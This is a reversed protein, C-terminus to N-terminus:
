SQEAKLLCGQAEEQLIHPISPSVWFPLAHSLSLSHPPPHLLSLGLLPLAPTVDSQTCVKKAMQKYALQPNRAPIPDEVTFSVIDGM